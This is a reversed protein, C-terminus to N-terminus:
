HQQEGETTPGELFAFKNCACLQLETAPAMPDGYVAVHTLSPNFANSCRRPGKSQQSILSGHATDYCNISNSSTSCIVTHPLLAHYCCSICSTGSTTLRLADYAHELHDGCLRAVKEGTVQGSEAPVCSTCTNHSCQLQTHESSNHKLTLPCLLGPAWIVHALEV